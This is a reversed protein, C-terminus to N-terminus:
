TLLDAIDLKGEKLENALVIGGIFGGAESFIEADIEFLLVVEEKDNENNDDEDEDEFEDEFEDEQSLDIYQPYGLLVEFDADEDNFVKNNLFTPIDDDVFDGDDELELDMSGPLSYFQHFEMKFEELVETNEPITAAILDTETVYKIVAEEMGDEGRFFVLINGSSPLQESGDFGQLDNCNYQLVFSLPGRKDSPWEFNKPVDPIGGKKSDGIKINADEDYTIAIQAKIEAIIDASDTETWDLQKIFTDLETKLNKM